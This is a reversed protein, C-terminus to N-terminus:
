EGFEDNEMAVSYKNLNVQLKTPILLECFSEDRQVLIKGKQSLDNAVDARLVYTVGDRSENKTAMYREFGDVWSVQNQKPNSRAFSGRFGGWEDATENIEDEIEDINSKKPLDILFGGSETVKIDDRDILYGQFYNEPVTSIAIHDKLVSRPQCLVKVGKKTVSDIVSSFRRVFFDKIKSM